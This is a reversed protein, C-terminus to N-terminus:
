TGAARRALEAPLSLVPLQADLAPNFCYPVSIREATAGSLNVRNENARLYGGTAVELL